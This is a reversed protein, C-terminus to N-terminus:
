GEQQRHTLADRLDQEDQEDLIIRGSSGRTVKLVSELAQVLHAVDPSPQPATYLPCIMYGDGGEAWSPYDLELLIHGDPLTLAWAVPEQGAREAPAPAAALLNARCDNWGMAYSPSRDADGAILMGPVAHEQKM